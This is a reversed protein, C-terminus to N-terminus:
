GESTRHGRDAPGTFGCTRLALRHCGGSLRSGALRRRCRLSRLDTSDSKCQEQLFRNGARSSGLAWPLRSRFESPPSLPCATVTAVAPVSLSLCGCRGAPSVCKWAVRRGRSGTAHTFKTERHSERERPRRRVAADSPETVPQWVGSRTSRRATAPLAPYIAPSGRRCGGGAASARLVERFGYRM